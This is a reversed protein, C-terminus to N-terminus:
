KLCSGEDVIRFILEYMDFPVNQNVPIINEIDDVPREPEKPEYLAQIHFPINTKIGEVSTAELASLMREIAEDRNRGWSILKALLPDYYPSVTYGEYVGSDIRIGDMDESIVWKTIKGPSPMFNKDPNEAYIRCEIAHGLISISSQDLDLKEGSAIKIQWKVLDVGTTMETSPHEVQIRTNMELFYFNKEPDVLFEVTGANTYNIAKAAKVATEGMRRRLDEDVFASPAEEIVKQHRRQISCERENLHITNGSEDALVQIEIHRPEEIFKEIYLSPDGFYAKAKAECMKFAQELEKEDKAIQMGIGGRASAKIMIPCGIESASDKAEELTTLERISGPAVEIGAERMIKRAKVKFGMAEIAGPDPGIFKIGAEACKKAFTANEALLGYGPHIAEAKAELACSIIREINLYSQAVPPPGINYAEDAM